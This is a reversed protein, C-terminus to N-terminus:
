SILAAPWQPVLQMSMIGVHHDGLNDHILLANDAVMQIVPNRSSPVRVRDEPVMGTNSDRLKWVSQPCVIAVVARHGSLGSHSPVDTCQMYMSGEHAAVNCGATENHM